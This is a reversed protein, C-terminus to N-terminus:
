YRRVGGMPPRIRPKGWDFDEVEQIQPSPKTSLAPKTLPEPPLTHGIGGGMDPMPRPQYPNPRQEVPPLRGTGPAVPPGLMGGGQSWGGMFPNIGSSPNPPRTAQVGYQGGGTMDPAAGGMGGLANGGGMPPRTFNPLKSPDPTNPNIQGYWQNTASQYANGQPPRQPRRAAQPNMQQAALARALGGYRQM